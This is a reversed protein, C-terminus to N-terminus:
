SGRERQSETARGARGAAYAFVGSSALSGALLAFLLAGESRSLLYGALAAGISGVGFVSLFTFGFAVGRLAKPAEHTVLTNQLAELSFLLFGFALAVVSFAALPPGWGEVLLVAGVALTGAAAESLAFLIRDPRRRDALTGSLVQGVAGLGLAAAFLGAGVFRPLFTLGGQYAFGAFMYVLLILAYPRTVLARRSAGEVAPRVRAEPPLFALLLLVAVVAVVGLSGAVLRWSGGLSIAAGVYAPGAAIGLSGGMGHWGMGRGQESVARSIVSLGTPHYAGSFLGLMGLSVALVPISPSAAVAAMSAAIGAACVVLIRAPPGRDALAGFPVAGVGYVGYGATALLGLTVDDARFEARWSLLFVPISLITAHVTGHLFGLLAVIRRDERRM